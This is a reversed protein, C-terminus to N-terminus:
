VPIQKIFKWNESDGANRRIPLKQESYHYAGDNFIGGKKLQTRIWLSKKELIGDAKEPAKAYEIELRTNSVAGKKM